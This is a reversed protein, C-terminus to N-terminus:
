IFERPTVTLSAGGHGYKSQRIAKAVGREYLMNNTQAASGNAWNQGAMMQLRFLAGHILTERNEKGVTDPVSSSSLTPKLSYLVKLTERVSPKPGVLITANDSQTYYTPESSDSAELRMIVDEYPLKALPRGNRLIATVHNPETGTPADLTYEAIGPVVILSAVEARYLDTRAFFDIAADRIAREATFEPCGPVESLVYVFLDSYKM